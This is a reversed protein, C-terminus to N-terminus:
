GWDGNHRRALYRWGQRHGVHATQVPGPPTPAKRRFWRWLGRVPKFVIEVVIVVVAAVSALLVGNEVLFAKALVM